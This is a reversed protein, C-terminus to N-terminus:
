STSTPVPDPDRRVPATTRRRATESFPSLVKTMAGYLASGYRWQTVVRGTESTFYNRSMTWSTGEMTGMLWAHYRDAWAPKVEVATVARRAM